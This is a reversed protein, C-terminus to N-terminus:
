LIARQEQMIPIKYNQSLCPSSMILELCYIVHQWCSQVSKHPGPTDSFFKFTTRNFPPRPTTGWHPDLPCLGKTPTLPHLGVFPSPPWLTFGGSALAKKFILNSNTCCTSPVIIVFNNILLTHKKRKKLQFTTRGIGYWGYRNRRGQHPCKLTGQILVIKM